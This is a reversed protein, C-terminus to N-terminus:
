IKLIPNIKKKLQHSALTASHLSREQRQRKYTCHLRILILRGELWSPVFCVCVRLSFKGIENKRTKKEGFFNFRILKIKRIGERLRENEKETYITFQRFRIFRRIISYRAGRWEGAWEELLIKGSLAIMEKCGTAVQLNTIKKKKKGETQRHSTTLISTSTYDTSKVSFRLAASLTKKEKEYVCVSM